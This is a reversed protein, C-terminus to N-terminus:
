NRTEPVQQGVPNNEFNSFKTEARKKRKLEEFQEGNFGMNEFPRETKQKYVPPKSNEGACPLPALTLSQTMVRWSYMFKFM